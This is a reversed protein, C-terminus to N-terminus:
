LTMKTSRFNLPKQAIYKDFKSFIYGEVQLDCCCCVAM